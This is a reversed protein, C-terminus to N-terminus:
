FKYFVGFEGSPRTMINDPINYVGYGLMFHVVFDFIYYEVGPGIGIHWKYDDDSGFMNAIHNGGYIFFTSHPFDKIKHLYTAGISLYSHKKDLLPLFTLQFGSKGPWYIYSLGVGSTTGINVGVCNNGEPKTIKVTDIQARV